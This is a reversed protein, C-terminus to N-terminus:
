KRRQIKGNREQLPAGEVLQRKLIPCDYGAKDVCDVFQDYSVLISSWQERLKMQDEEVGKRWEQYKEILYKTNTEKNTTLRDLFQDVFRRDTQALFSHIIPITATEFFREFPYKRVMLYDSLSLLELDDSSVTDELKGEIDLPWIPLDARKNVGLPMAESVAVIQGETSVACFYLYFKNKPNLPEPGLDISKKFQFIYDGKDIPSNKPIQVFTGPLARIEIKNIDCKVKLKLYYYHINLLWHGDRKEVQLLRAKGEVNWIELETINSDVKLQPYIDPPRYTGEIPMNELKKQCHPCKNDLSIEFCDECFYTGSIDGDLGLAWAKAGRCTMSGHIYWDSGTKKQSCYTCYKTQCKKCTLARAQSQYWTGTCDTNPCKIIKREEQAM